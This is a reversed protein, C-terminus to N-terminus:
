ETALSERAAGLLVFNACRYLAEGDVQETRQMQRVQAARFARPVDADTQLERYFDTDFALCEEDNAQWLSAVVFRAGSGLFAHALSEPFSMPGEARATYCAATNVVSARVPSGLVEFLMLRGDSHQQDPALRLFSLWPVVPDAQAHCAFHVIDSHPLVEALVRSPTANENLFARGGLIDTVNRVEPEVAPLFPEGPHGVAATRLSEAPPPTSGALRLSPVVIVEWRRLIRQGSPRLWAFPV